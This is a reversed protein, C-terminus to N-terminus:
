EIKVKIELEETPPFAQLWLQQQRQYEAENAYWSELKPNEQIVWQWIIINIVFLAILILWAFTRNIIVRKLKGGSGYDM